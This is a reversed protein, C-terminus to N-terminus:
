AGKLDTETEMRRRWEAAAEATILRRRGVAIYKPGKGQKWLKYLMARSIDHAECFPMVGYAAAQNMFKM